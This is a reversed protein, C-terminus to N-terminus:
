EQQRNWCTFSNSVDNPGRLAKLRTLSEAVPRELPYAKQSYTSGFMVSWTRVAQISSYHHRTQDNIRDNNNNYAHAPNFPICSPSLFSMTCRALTPAFFAAVTPWCDCLWRYYKSMELSLDSILRRKTWKWLWIGTWSCTGPRLGAMICGLESTGVSTNHRRLMTVPSSSCSSSSYSPWNRVLRDISCACRPTKNEHRAKIKIKNESMKSSTRSSHPLYPETLLRSIGRGILPTSTGPTPFTASSYRM